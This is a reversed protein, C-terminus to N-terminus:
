NGESRMLVYPEERSARWAPVAAGALGIAGALAVCGGAFLALTEPPPWGVPAAVTEFYYGLSRYFLLVFGAGLMLGVIGGLGTTMVAEALVLRRLQRPKAGVALLLGLERRREALVASFVVSVMLVSALILLATFFLAGSQLATLTQRASTFLSPGAVVKVESNDALAFRVEEAKAGVRLRVLLASAQAAGADTLQEFTDPTVFVARDYPGVGTLGLKAYVTLTQGFLSLESDVKEDRRAGVIRDGPRMPRDLKEVVWPLVTFDSRPDFSALDVAHSHGRGPLEVRHTRQAAVREVGPLKAVVDILGADLTHPTPEATLLAPTLNVLTQRPVILLDAGMRGFGAALGESLGRRVVLTTFVAAIAVAVALASLATRAPRRGLNQAALRPLLTARNM